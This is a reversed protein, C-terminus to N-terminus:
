KVNDKLKKKKRVSNIFADFCGFPRRGFFLAFFSLQFSDRALTSFAFGSRMASILAAGCHVGYFSFMRSTTLTRRLRSFGEEHLHHHQTRHAEDHCWM